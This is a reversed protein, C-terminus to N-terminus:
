QFKSMARDVAAKLDNVAAAVGDRLSEWAGEGAQKIENLKGRLQNKQNQLHDIQQQYELKADAKAADTKARLQDIKATGERVQAELKEVYAQKTGM